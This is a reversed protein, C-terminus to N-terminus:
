YMRLLTWRVQYLSFFFFFFTGRSFEDVTVKPCEIDVPSVLKKSALVENAVGFHREVSINTRVATDYKLPLRHLEKFKKAESLSASPLVAITSAAKHITLHLAGFFLFRRLFLRCRHQSVRDHKISAQDRILTDQIWLLRFRLPVYFLFSLLTNLM